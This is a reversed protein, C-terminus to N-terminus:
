EISRYMAWESVYGEASVKYVVGLKDDILFHGGQLTPVSKRLHVPFPQPVRAGVQYIRGQYKEQVAQM